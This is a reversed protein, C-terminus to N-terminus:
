IPQEHKKGCPIGGGHLRHIVPDVAVQVWLSFGFFRFGFIRARAEMQKFRSLIDTLHAHRHLLLKRCGHLLGAGTGLGGEDQTTRDAFRFIALWGEVIPPRRFKGQFVL